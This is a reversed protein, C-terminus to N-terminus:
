TMYATGGLGVGDYTSDPAKRYFKESDGHEDDYPSKFLRYLARTPEFDGQEAASYAQVLMWERPVFKPSAARMMASSEQGSTGDKQLVTCWARVWSCWQARQSPSMAKYFVLPDLPKLLASNTETSQPAAAADLLTKNTPYVSLQRWLLTYDAGTDEMLELLQSLLSSAEESWSGLGMKRRWVDNLENAALKRHNEVVERAQREGADDILLSRLSLALVEFNKAGAEPQNLFGFHEGGGTWMNWLPQFKEIFGFPGFDMTRGAVLCNDSNFNGQCFGVRIWDATLRAIRKSAEQLLTIAMKQTAAPDDLPVATSSDLGFERVLAHHVLKILQTNAVPAESGGRAVRRGFLDFHGVRMFSPAARCTIACRQPVTQDPQKAENAVHSIVQSRIEPPFRALRPDDISTPIDVQSSQARHNPSYWPRQTLMSLSTVLSLARTTSVGLNHMAESALMERVSSRLVARGDAGRCFPTPGSGKLQLEWSGSTPTDIEAISAARGDGYGKGDKFPCNDTYQRGYIALAYPTAWAKGSFGAAKGANEVDGSFFSVFNSDTTANEDLGLTACLESSHLVLVPDTLPVPQVTVYHGSHVRRSTRNPWHKQAEVDEDMADMFRTHSAAAFNKFSRFASAM